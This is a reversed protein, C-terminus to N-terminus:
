SCVYIILTYPIIRVQYIAGNPLDFCVVCSLVGVLRSELRDRNELGSNETKARKLPPEKESRDCVQDAMVVSVELLTSSAQDEMTYINYKCCLSKVTTEEKSLIRKKKESFIKLSTNVNTITRLAM